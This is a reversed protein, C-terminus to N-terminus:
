PAASGIAIMAQTKARVTTMSAITADDTSMQNSTRTDLKYGIYVTDDILKPSPVDTTATAYPVSWMVRATTASPASSVSTSETYAINQSQLVPTGPSPGEMRFLQVRYPTGSKLAIGSAFYTALVVSYPTMSTSPNMAATSASLAENAGVLTVLDDALEWCSIKYVTSQTQATHQWTCTISYFSVSDIAFSIKPETKASATRLVTSSSMVHKRHSTSDQVYKQQVFREKTM